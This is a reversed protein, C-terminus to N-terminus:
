RRGFEDQSEFYVQLNEVPINGPISTDARWIFGPYRRGMEATEKTAQRVEEPTAFTLTYQDVGAVLVHSQGFRELFGSIDFRREVQFGDVGLEILDTVLPDFAGDCVFIVRVERERLMEWFRRYWPYIYTAYWPHPFVIRDTMALDDHCFLVEIGADAWAALHRMSIEAFGDLIVQFRDPDLMAAIMFNEWGFLMVPWMFLTTYFQAVTYAQDGMLAQAEQLQCRYLTTLEAQSRTEAQRPDYDFVGEPSTVEFELRTQTDILGWYTSKVKGQSQASSVDPSSPPAAGFDTVNLAEQSSDAIQGITLSSSRDPLTGVRYIDMDLVHMAALSAERPHTYPNLGSLHQLMGPHYITEFRPIRDTPELFFGARGRTYSM